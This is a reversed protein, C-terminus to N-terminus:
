KTLTETFTGTSWSFGHGAFDFTTIQGTGVSTGTGTVGTFEGTGGSFSVTQTFAFNFPPGTTGEICITGGTITHVLVSGTASRISAGSGGAVYQFECANTIAGLTCSAITTPAIICGTGSVPVIENVDQGTFPGGFVGTSNGTSTSASSDDPCTTFNGSTTCSTGNGDIDVPVNVSTGSFSGTVQFTKAEARHVGILFIATAMFVGTFAIKFRIM